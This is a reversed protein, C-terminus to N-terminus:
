YLRITTEKVWGGWVPHINRLEAALLEGGSSVSWVVTINMKPPPPSSQRSDCREWQWSWLLYPSLNSKIPPFISWWMKYYPLPCFIFYVCVDGGNGAALLQLLCLLKSKGDDERAQNTTPHLLQSFLLFLSCPRALMTPFVLGLSLFSFSYLVQSPHRTDWNLIVCSSAYNDWAM